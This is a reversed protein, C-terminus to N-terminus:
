ADYQIATSDARIELSLYIVAPPKPAKSAKPAFPASTIAKTGSAPADADALTRVVRYNVEAFKAGAKWLLRSRCCRRVASHYHDSLYKGWAASGGNEMGTALMVAPVGGEVHRLSGVQCLSGTRCPIPSLKVNM